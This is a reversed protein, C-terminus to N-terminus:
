KGTIKARKLVPRIIKTPVMQPTLPQKGNLRESPFLFDDDERYLSAKRWNMLAAFVTLHLPVPKGSADTEVKGFHNRVCSRTVAIQMNQLDVDSWRLAFMESRRLGIAGALMVMAQDRVPLELLLAQFEGPTLVDPEHQRQASTRVKSIPNSTIWEHRIGHDFIASM